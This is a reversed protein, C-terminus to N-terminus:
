AAEAVSSIEKDSVMKLTQREASGQRNVERNPVAVCQRERLIYRNYRNIPRWEALEQRLLLYFV